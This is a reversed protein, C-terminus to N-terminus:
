GRAADDLALLHLLAADDTAIAGGADLLNRHRRARLVRDARFEVRHIQRLDDGVLALVLGARDDDIGVVAEEVQHHAVALRPAVADADALRAEFPGAGV